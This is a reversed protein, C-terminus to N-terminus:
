IEWAFDLIMVMSSFRFLLQFSVEPLAIKLLKTNYFEFHESM